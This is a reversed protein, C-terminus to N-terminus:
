NGTAVAPAATQNHRVLRYAALALAARLGPRNLHMEVGSALCAALHPMIRDLAATEEPSGQATTLLAETEAPADRVMCISTVEGQDYARFRPLAPNFAVRDALTGRPAADHLLTEALNGALLVGGFRLRSGGPLCVNGADALRRLDNRYADSTYDGLIIGRARGPEHTVVCRAFQLLARRDEVSPAGALEARPARDGALATGAASAFALGALLKAASRLIAKRAPDVKLKPM